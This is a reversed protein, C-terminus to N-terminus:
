RKRAAVWLFRCESGHEIQTVVEDREVAFGARELLRRNEDQGFHSFYMPTGLWDEEISGPDDGVGLCAVFLGSPRLWERIRGFLEAHRDRPVHTVSHIAIVGDFSEPDFVVTSMDARHFRADPVNGRALQLQRASVDVATVRYREALARTVPIGAGCGLELVPAEAPVAQLFLATYADRGRSGGAESWELYTEAIADYGRRVIEVPDSM